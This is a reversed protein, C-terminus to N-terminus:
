QQVWSTTAAPKAQWNRTMGTASVTVGYVVAGDTVYFADLATPAGTSDVPAGRSNFTACSTNAIAAGANDTCAPAQGIAGQTNPPANGIGSVGFVVNSALSNTGGDTTWQSTAKNWLEIRHTRGTLDAYLRVQTFSSAARIKVLAIANSISRADGSVRFYALANGIIPMSIASIVAVLATVTLLELLSVGQEDSWLYAQGM